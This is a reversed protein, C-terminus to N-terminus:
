ANRRRKEHNGGGGGGGGGKQEEQDRGGRGVGEIAKEKCDAAHDWTLLITVRGWLSKKGHGRKKMDERRGKSVQCARKGSINGERTHLIQITVVECSAKEVRHIEGGWKAVKVKTVNKREM